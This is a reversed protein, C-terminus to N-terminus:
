RPVADDRALEALRDVAAQGRRVPLGPRRIQLTSAQGTVDPWPPLTMATTFPPSLHSTKLFLPLSIDTIHHLNYYLIVYIYYQTYNCM